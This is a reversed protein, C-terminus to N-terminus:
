NLFCFLYLLKSSEQFLAEAIQWGRLATKPSTKQVYLEMQLSLYPM